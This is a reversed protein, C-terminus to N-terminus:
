YMKATSAYQEPDAGSEVAVRKGGAAWLMGRRMIEQAEPIDFVDDHHGLSNYFVRGHGWMKTWVVPVDVAGNAAHYYNAVPYRTTALVDIAPDIHVYYQESRVMFDRIGATIPSSGTRINVAYEVGDGGPHSVWQGGTMFQWEVNERFSDCMGGHCGALGVGYKGVAEVVGRCQENTISGGTWVPVILDLGRLKEADLFADLTDSIEVDFDEGRLIRAFREAVQSPEHGDWGGWVILARKM